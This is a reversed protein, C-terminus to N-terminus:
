RPIENLSNIAATIRGKFGDFEDYALLRRLERLVAELREKPTAIVVPRDRAPNM